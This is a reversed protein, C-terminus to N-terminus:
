EFTLTFHDMGMSCSGTIETGSPQPPLPIDTVGTVPLAKEYGITRIVLHRSCDATNHTTMRLISPIDAKLVAHDPTYGNHALIAVIQPPDDPSALTPPATLTFTLLLLCLLLSTRTM